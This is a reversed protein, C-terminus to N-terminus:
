ILDRSDEKRRGKKVGYSFIRWPISLLTLFLRLGRKVTTEKLFQV